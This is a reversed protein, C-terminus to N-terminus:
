LRSPSSRRTSRCTRSTPASRTVKRGSIWNFTFQFPMMVGAVPRYDSYDIENPLRGDATNVHRVYRVLLGTQKDFYLTVLLGNSGNAQVAWVPKDDISTPFGVRWNTFNKRIEGPFAM